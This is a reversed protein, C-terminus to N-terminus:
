FFFNRKRLVFNKNKFKILSINNTYGFQEVEQVVRERMSVDHTHSLTTWFITCNPQVVLM